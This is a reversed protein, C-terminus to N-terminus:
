EVKLFFLEKPYNSEDIWYDNANLMLILLYLSSIAFWIM